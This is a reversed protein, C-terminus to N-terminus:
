TLATIMESHYELYIGLSNKFFAKRPSSHYPAQLCSFDAVARRGDRLLSPCFQKVYHTQKFLSHKASFNSFERGAQFDTIKFTLCLSLKIEVM